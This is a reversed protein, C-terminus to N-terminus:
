RGALRQNARAPSTSEEWGRCNSEPAAIRWARNFVMQRAPSTSAYPRQLRSPGGISRWCVSLLMAWVIAAKSTHVLVLDVTLVLVALVPASLIYFGLTRAPRRGLNQVALRPLLTARNM